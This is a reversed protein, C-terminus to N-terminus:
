SSADLVRASSATTKKTKLGIAARLAANGTDTDAFKDRVMAYIPVNPYASQFRKVSLANQEPDSHLIIFARPSGCLPPVSFDFVGNDRKQMKDSPQAAAQTDVVLAEGWMDNVDDMVVLEHSSADEEMADKFNPNSRLVDVIGTTDEKSGVFIIPCVARELVRTDVTNLDDVSTLGVGNSGVGLM